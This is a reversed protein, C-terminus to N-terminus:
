TTAPLNIEVKAFPSSSCCRELPPEAAAVPSSPSPRTLEPLALPSPERVLGRVCCRCGNEGGGVRGAGGGLMEFAAGTGIEGRGGDGSRGGGRRRRMRVVVVPFAVGGAGGNRGAEARRM